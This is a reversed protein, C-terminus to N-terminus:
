LRISRPRQPPPWAVIIENRPRGDNDAVRLRVKRTTTSIKRCPAGFYGWLVHPVRHYTAFPLKPVAITGGITVGNVMLEAITAVFISPFSRLAPHTHKHIQLKHAFQHIWNAVNDLMATDNCGASMGTRTSRMIDILRNGTTLKRKATAARQALRANRRDKSRGFIRHVETIWVSQGLASNERRKLSGARRLANAGKSRKSNFTNCCHTFDTAVYVPGEIEVGTTACFTGESNAVRKPCGLPHAHCQGSFMSKFCRTDAM